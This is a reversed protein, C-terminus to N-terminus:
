VSSTLSLYHSIIIIIIVIIIIIILNYVEKPVGHVGFNLYHIYSFRRNISIM